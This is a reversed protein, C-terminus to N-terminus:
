HTEGGEKVLSAYIMNRKLREILHIGQHLYLKEPFVAPLHEMFEMCIAINTGTMRSLITGGYFCAGQYRPAEVKIFYEPAQLTGKEVRFISDVTALVVLTDGAKLVTDDFPLWSCELAGSRKFMLPVVGYGCAVKVLFQNELTDGPEVRYETVLVTQGALRFLTPIQEGFAAAAFAQAALASAPLVQAQPWLRALHNSFRADYTRVVLRIDPCIQRAKLGIELNVLEDKSLTVLSVATMLNARALTKEINESDHTVKPFEGTEAGESTIGIVPIGFSRLQSAIAGGIRGMDFIIVHGKDPMPDHRGFRFRSSLLYQTIVAYILGMFVTGSLTLMLGLFRLWCPINLSFSLDAGLLDPYGGLLLVVADYFADQPTVGPTFLYFLFAGAGLLIFIVASAMLAVRRIQDSLFHKTARRIRRKLRYQKINKITEAPETGNTDPGLAQYPHRDSIDESSDSLSRSIESDTIESVELTIVGHDKEVMDSDRWQYFREFPTHPSEMALISTERSELSSLPRGALEPFQTPTRRIVRVMRDELPFCAMLADGMAGLAFAPASLRSTEFAVLNGLQRALLDNLGEKGSRMVIRIDRSLLRIAMAAEINVRDNSTVILAARFRSLDIRSLLANQRCDGQYLTELFSELGDIQWHDMTKLEIASVQMGLSHLEFVCHQGLNGLGCVLFRAKEQDYTSNTDTVM